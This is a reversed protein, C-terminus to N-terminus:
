RFGGNTLRKVISKVGIVTCFLIESPNGIGSGISGRLGVPFRVVTARSMTLGYTMCNLTVTWRSTQDPRTNLTPYTPANDLFCFTEGLMLRASGPSPAM